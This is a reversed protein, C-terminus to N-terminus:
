VLPVCLVDRLLTLRISRQELRSEQDAVVRRKAQNPLDLSPILIVKRSNTVDSATVLAEIGRSRASESDTEVAYIEQRVSGHEERTPFNMNEVEATKHKRFVTPPEREVVKGCGCQTSPGYLGDESHNERLRNKAVLGKLFKRGSSQIVPLGNKAKWEPRRDASSRGGWV